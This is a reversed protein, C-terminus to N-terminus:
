SQAEQRALAASKHGRHWVQRQRTSLLWASTAGCSCLGYGDTNQDARVYGPTPTQDRRDWATVYPRGESALTHGPVRKNTM